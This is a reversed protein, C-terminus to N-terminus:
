SSQTNGERDARWLTRPHANEELTMENGILSIGSVADDEEVTIPHYARHFLHCRIVAALARKQDTPLHM